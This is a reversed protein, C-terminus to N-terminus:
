TARATNNPAFSRDAAICASPNGPSPPTSAARPARRTIPGRRGGARESYADPRYWDSCWEWVNGAMDHLGYGNPPFQGVPAIGAFGDDATDNVPFRGQWINAMWKGGPRFEDGWSYPQGAVGGRAAFEWEAETPLRKGAWRAYAEADEYAVQVVPYNGRGEITSDPGQPHRWSAGKM